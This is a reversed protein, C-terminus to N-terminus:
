SAVSRESKRKEKAGLRGERQRYRRYSELDPDLLHDPNASEVHFAQSRHLWDTADEMISAAVPVFRRHITLTPLPYDRIATHQTGQTLAIFPTDTHLKQALRHTKGTLVHGTSTRLLSRSGAEPVEESRSRSPNQLRFDFAFLIDAPDITAMPQEQGSRCEELWRAVSKQCDLLMAEILGPPQPSRHIGVDRAPRSLYSVLSQRSLDERISTQRRFRLAGLLLSPLGRIVLGVLEWFHNEEERVLFLERPTQLRGPLEHTGRRLREVRQLFFLLHPLHHSPTKM